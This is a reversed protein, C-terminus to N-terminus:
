YIEERNSSFLAKDNNRVPALPKMFWGPQGEAFTGNNFAFNIDFIDGFRNKRCKFVFQNKYGPEDRYLEPRDAGFWYSANNHSGSSDAADHPWPCRDDTSRNAANRNMQTLLIVDCDLEIALSALKRSIDSIKLDHRDYQTTTQVLGLYDVVIVSLKTEMARLRATTIIFDIDSAQRCMSTDYVRTPVQISKTVAEMRETESLSDFPKGACIGIHRMWVHKYEMELSFFLAESNPQARAICDMLYISFGTKGVSPAACIIILSKPMFGGGLATNLQLCTTPIKLDVIMKGEYFDDAIEVGSMGHKSEQYSLGAIETLANALIEQAQEPSPCNTIERVMSEAISLQKRTQSFIVLRDVYREFNTEGAHCKGYNDVLWLYSNYLETAEKPILTSIDVFHFPMQNNFCNHILSFLQRNDPNYFCDPSLKLMAKQVRISTHSQFHMLTELVEQETELSYKPSSM